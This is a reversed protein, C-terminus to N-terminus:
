KDEKDTSVSSFTLTQLIYSQVDSEPLIDTSNCIFEGFTAFSHDQGSNKSQLYIDRLTLKDSEKM